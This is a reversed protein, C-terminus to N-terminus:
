YLLSSSSVAEGCLDRLACLLSINARTRALMYEAIGSIERTLNKNRKKLGKANRRTALSM